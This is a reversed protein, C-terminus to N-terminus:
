RMQRGTNNGVDISDNRSGYEDHDNLDQKTVIDLVDRWFNHFHRDLVFQEAFDAENTPIGDATPARQNLLFRDPENGVPSAHPIRSRNTM